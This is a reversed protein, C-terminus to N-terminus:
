LLVNLLMIGYKKHYGKDPLRLYIAGDGRSLAGYEAKIGIQIYPDEYLVGNDKMCLAQLREVINGIPQVSCADQEGLVITTADVVTGEIGPNSSPQPHDSSSPPGEIALPSLLDGLIDASLQQSYLNNSTGNDQSLRQDASINGVNSSTIPMKVLSLQGVHPPAGNAQSQDM